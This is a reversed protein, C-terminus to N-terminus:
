TSMYLLLLLSMKFHQSVTVVFGFFSALVFQEKVCHSLCRKADDTEAARCLFRLLIPVKYWMTVVISQCSVPSIPAMALWLVFMLINDVHDTENQEPKGTRIRGTCNKIARFIVLFVEHKRAYVYVCNLSQM